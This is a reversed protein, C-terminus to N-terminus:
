KSHQMKSSIIELISSTFDNLCAWDGQGISVTRASTEEFLCSWTKKRVEKSTFFFKVFKQLHRYLRPNWGSLTRPESLHDM